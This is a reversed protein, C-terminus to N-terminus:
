RTLQRDRDAPGTKGCDPAPPCTVVSGDKM